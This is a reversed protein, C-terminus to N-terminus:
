YDSWGVGANGDASACNASEIRALLAESLQLMDPQNIMNKSHLVANELLNGLTPNSTLKVGHLRVSVRFSDVLFLCANEVHNLQPHRSKRPEGAAIGPRLTIVGM